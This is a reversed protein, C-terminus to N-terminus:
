VITISLSHKRQKLDELAQSLKEIIVKLQKNDYHVYLINAICLIKYILGCSGAAICLGGIIRPSDTLSTLLSGIVVLGISLGAISLSYRLPGVSSDTPTMTQLAQRNDQLTKLARQKLAYLAIMKVEIEKKITDKDHAHALAYDQSEKLYHPLTKEVSFRSHWHKTLFKLNNWYNFLKNHKRSVHSTNFFLMIDKLVIELMYEPSYYMENLMVKKHINKIFSSIIENVTRDSITIKRAICTNLFLSDGPLFEAITQWVKPPFIDTLKKQHITISIANSNSQQYDQASCNHMGCIICLLIAASIIYRKNM